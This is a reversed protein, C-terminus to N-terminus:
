EIPSITFTEPKSWSDEYYVKKIPNLKLCPTLRTHSSPAVWREEQKGKRATMYYKKAYM